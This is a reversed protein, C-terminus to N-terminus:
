RPLHQQDSNAAAKAILKVSALKWAQPVISLAWCLNFINHLASLLAPCRKFINYSIRDFPSPSLSNRSRKVAAEIETLSIGDTNFTITSPKPSPMWAPQSFHRPEAHYAETFFSTADQVSFSPQVDESQKTELLQKSFKWFSTHCRYRVAKMLVAKELVQKKRVLQNHLRISQFFKRAISQINKQSLGFKKAENFEKRAERKRMKAEKVQKAIKQQRKRGKGESKTGCVREFYKYIGETLVTHKDDASVQNVVELVLVKEFFANAANWGEVTTPLVLRPKTEFCQDASSTPLSSQRLCALSVPEPLMQTSLTCSGVSPDQESMSSLCVSSPINKCCSSNRLHTDLRAFKKHYKPCFKIKCSNGKKNNLTKESLIFTYDCGIRVPCRPLYNGLRRYGSKGCFPCSCVAGGDDKGSQGSLIAAM